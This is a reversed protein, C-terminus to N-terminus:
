ENEISASHRLLHLEASLMLVRIGWFDAFSRYIDSVAAMREEEEFDRFQEVFNMVDQFIDAYCESASVNVTEGTEYGAAETIDFYMEHEGLIDNVKAHIANYADESVYRELYGDYDGAYEDLLSAKLYLLSLLKLSKDVFQGRTFKEAKTLFACFETAVAFFEAVNKKNQINENM